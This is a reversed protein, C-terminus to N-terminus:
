AAEEIQFEIGINHDVALEWAQADGEVLGEIMPQTIHVRGGDVFPVRLEPEIVLVATGDAEAMVGAGVNHLYHQGDGDEISLWYGERVTANPNLGRVRLLTGAQGAGDVMAGGAGECRGQDVGLLPYPLRLGLRKARILRSVWIRGDDASDLPPYRVAIRYHSGKRNVRLASLGRLTGGRDVLAPTAGNPAPIMPLTIM